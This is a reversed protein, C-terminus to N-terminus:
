QSINELKTTLYCNSSAPLIPSNNRNVDANISITIIYYRFYKQRTEEWSNRAIKYVTVLIISNTKKSQRWSISISISVQQSLKRIRQMNKIQM